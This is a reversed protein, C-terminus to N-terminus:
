VSIRLGQYFYRVYDCTPYKGGHNNLVRGDPCIVFKTDADTAVGIADDQTRLEFVFRNNLSRSYAEDDDM